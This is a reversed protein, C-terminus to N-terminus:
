DVVTEASDDTVVLLGYGEIRVSGRSHERVIKGGTGSDLRLV